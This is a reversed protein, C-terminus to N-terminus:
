KKLLRASHNIRIVTVVGGMVLYVIRYNGVIIERISIDNFEPVIRGSLPFKNLSSVESFIKEVFKQAYSRSDRAIFDHINALDKLAIESWTIKEM